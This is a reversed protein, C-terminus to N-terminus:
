KAMRKFFPVMFVIGMVLYFYWPLSMADSRFRPWATYLFLTFFLTSIIMFNVEYQKFTVKRTFREKLNM